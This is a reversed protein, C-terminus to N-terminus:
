SGERYTHRTDFITWESNEYATPFPLDAATRDILVYDINYTEILESWRQPSNMRYANSLQEHPQAGRPPRPIPAFDMLREFWERMAQDDFVVAPWNSAVARQANSRFTSNMPPIAFLSNESTHNAAWSEAEGTPTQTHALPQIRDFSFGSGLLAPSLVIAVLVVSSCSLLLSREEVIQRLPTILTRPALHVLWGCFIITAIGVVPVSLKFLQLKAVFSIPILEVFLIAVLWLFLCVLFARFLFPLYSSARHEYKATGRFALACLGVVLSFKLYSMTGFSFFLQHWPIRFVSYIYFSSPEGPSPEATLLEIGVPVVVPLSTLFVALSLRAVGRFSHETDRLAVSWLSALILVIATLGGALLQFWMAVGLLVGSAVYRRKFFLALALLVLAWGISGPYFANYVLSNLGLTFKCTLALAVFVGFSARLSDDFFTMAVAYLGWVALYWTALYLALTWAWLPLVSGGAALLWVFFTRVNIGSLVEMAIWDRTFLDGDILAMAAPLIEDHDGSAYAYGFRVFYTTM